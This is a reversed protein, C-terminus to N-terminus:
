ISTPNPKSLKVWAEVMGFWKVTKTSNLKRILHKKKSRM